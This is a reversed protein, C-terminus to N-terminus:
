GPLGPTGHRDLGVWPHYAPRQHVATVCHGLHGHEAEESEVREVPGLVRSGHEEEVEVEGREDKVWIRARSLTWSVRFGTGRM